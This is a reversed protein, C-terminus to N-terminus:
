WASGLRVTGALFLFGDLAHDGCFILVWSVGGGVTWLVGVTGLSLLKLAELCALPAFLLEAFFDVILIARSNDSCNWWSKQNLLQNKNQDEDLWGNKKNLRRCGQDEM